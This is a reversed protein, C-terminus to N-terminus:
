HPERAMLLHLTKQLTRRCREVPWLEQVLRGYATAVRGGFGMPNGRNIEVEWDYGLFYDALPVTNSLCQLAANMFCTNGLNRLGTLGYGPKLKERLVREHVQCYTQDAAAAASGADESGASRNSGGSAGASGAGGNGAAATGGDGSADNDPARPDGEDCSANSQSSAGGGM